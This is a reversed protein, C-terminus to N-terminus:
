AAAALVPVPFPRAHVDDILGGAMEVCSGCGSGLGTRMTLESVTRVGSEAARRIDHDTVGHCICVYLAAPGRHSHSANQQQIRIM